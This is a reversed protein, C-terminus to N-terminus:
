VAPLPEYEARIAEAARQALEPDEAAVIAVRDGVFRPWGRLIEPPADDPGLVLVVGPLGRAASSDLAAVRAHAHPSRLVAVHLLGAPRHDDAFTGQGTLRKTTMLARAIGRAGGGGAPRS